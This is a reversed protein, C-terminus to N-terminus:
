QTEGMLAAVASRAYSMYTARYGCDPVPCQKDHEDLTEGHDDNFLFSALQAIPGTEKLQDRQWKAGDVFLLEAERSYWDSDARDRRNAENWAESDRLETENTM